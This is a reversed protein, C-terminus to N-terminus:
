EGEGGARPIREPLVSGVGALARHLAARNTRTAMERMEERAADRWHAPRNTKKRGEKGMEHRIEAYRTTNILVVQPGNKGGQIQSRERRRLQGTRRWRPRGNKKLPVPIAYILQDMYKLSIKLALDRVELMAYLVEAPLAEARRENKRALQETNSRILSM